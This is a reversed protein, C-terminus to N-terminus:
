QHRALEQVIFCAWYINKVFNHTIGSKIDVIIITFIILM